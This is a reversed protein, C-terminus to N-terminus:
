QDDQDAALVLSGSRYGRAVGLQAIMIEGTAAIGEVRGRAPAVCMRGAAIDRQGFQTLEDTTLSGRAAAAARLGPVLGALVDVRRTGEVLGAADPDMSEPARVNVGFGIAVWQPVGDQWRAEILVGGLKRTGLFLDNPWKLGVPSGAFHDLIRAAYVGVRLALVEVARGDEPREILTLWIGAGAASRWARGGRGRGATQCDALVVTGAAAGAAALTHAMDMTSSTEAYVALRPVHLRHELDATVVDDYRATEPAVITARPAAIAIGDGADAM